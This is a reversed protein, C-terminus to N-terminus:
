KKNLRSKENGRRVSCVNWSMEWVPIGSRVSHLFFFSDLSLLANIGRILLPHTAEMTEPDEIGTKIPISAKLSPIELSGLPIANTDIVQLTPEPMKGGQSFVEILTILKVASPRVLEDNPSSLLMSRVTKRGQFGIKQQMDNRVERLPGGTRV